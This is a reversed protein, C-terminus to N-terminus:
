TGRCPAAGTRASLVTVRRGLAKSSRSGAGVRVRKGMVDNAEGRARAVRRVVEDWKAGAKGRGVRRELAGGSQVAERLEVGDLGRVESVRWVGAARCGERVMDVEEPDVIDVLFKHEERM